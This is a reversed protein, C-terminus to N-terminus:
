CIILWKTYSSRNWGDRQTVIIEITNIIWYDVCCVIGICNLFLARNMGYLILQLIIACDSSFYFTYARHQQRKHYKVIYFWVTHVFHPTNNFGFHSDHVVDRGSLHKPDNMKRGNHITIFTTRRGYINCLM